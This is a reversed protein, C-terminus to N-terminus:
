RLSDSTPQPRNLASALRQLAQLLLKCLLPFECCNGFDHVPCSSFLVSSGVLSSPALDFLHGFKALFSHLHVRIDVLM